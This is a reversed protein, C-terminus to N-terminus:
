RLDVGCSPLQLLLNQTSYAIHALISNIDIKKPRKSKRTVLLQQEIM